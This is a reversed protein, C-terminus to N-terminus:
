AERMMNNKIYGSVEDIEPYIRMRNIGYTNLQKMIRDKNKIVLIVKKKDVKVRLDELISYEDTEKKNFPNPSYIEDLLGCLIFAGDQNMIRRNLKQPSILYYELISPLLDRLSSFARENRVEAKLMEFAKDGINSKANNRAYEFLGVKEKHELLPLSSLMVTEVDQYYKFRDPAVELMIVEGSKTLNSECAFFLATLANSTVDLLRTPLGYHQMEALIDIHNNLALFDQPCASLLDLYLKRENEYFKKERFVSPLLRYSLRSHGRFFVQNNIDGLATELEKTYDAISSIARLRVQESDYLIRLDKDYQINDDCKCRKILADILKFKNEWKGVQKFILYCFASREYDELPVTRSKLTGNIDDMFTNIYGETIDMKSDIFEKVDFILITSDIRKLEERVEAIPVSDWISDAIDSYGKITVPDILILELERWADIVSIRGLIKDDISANTDLVKTGM